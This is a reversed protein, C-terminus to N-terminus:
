LGIQQYIRKLKKVQEEDATIINKTSSAFRGWEKRSDFLRQIWAWPLLWPHRQLYSYRDKLSRVPPFAHFVLTKFKSVKESNRDQKKLFVISDDRGAYGYVGGMLTFELFDAMIEDAVPQLPLPAPIGFWQQTALLAVNAFNALQLAQLQEAVWDWSVSNGFHRIFFALDLYMRVGAGSGSIHKAIHTLLYLFHFEPKFEFFHPLALVSSPQAHEWIHSFYAMYDAKDSVDVELIKTHVEYFEGAKVYSYVPEWDIKVTYGLEKMLRDCKERDEPRIVLDIDGFTRLEPVPYYNRVVFGKFLLCDIGAESYRSALATMQDARAAYMSVESLCTQRLSPRLQPEVLEPHCMYVHSVIGQTNNIYSLELLKQWQQASLAEPSSDQVFARLAALYQPFVERM